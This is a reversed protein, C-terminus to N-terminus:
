AATEKVLYSTGDYNFPKLNGDSGFQGSTTVTTSAKGNSGNVMNMAAGGKGGSANVFAVSSVGVFSCGDAELLRFNNSATNCSITGDYVSISSSCREFRLGYLTGNAVTITHKNLNVVVKGGTFQSIIPATTIQFDSMIRFEVVFKNNKPANTIATALDTQSSIEYITNKPVYEDMILRIGNLAFYYSSATQTCESRRVSLDTVTVCEYGYSNGTLGLKYTYNVCDQFQMGSIVANTGNVYELLYQTVATPTGGCAYAYFGNISLGRFSSALLVKTCSECGCGSMNTGRAYLVYAVASRDCYCSVLSYYCANFLYFGYETCDYTGCNTLVTATTINNNTGRLDFGRTGVSVNVNTLIGVFTYMFVGTQNFQTIIIDEIDPYSCYSTETGGIIGYNINKNGQITVGTLKLYRVSALNFFSNIVTGASAYLVANDGIIHTYDKTINLFTTSETPDATKLYYDGNPIEVKGRVEQALTIARRIYPASDSTQDNRKAGYKLVNYTDSILMAQRNGQLPIIDMENATMGTVAKYIAGGGDNVAYYGLTIMCSNDGLSTSAKMDAVTDFYSVKTQFLVQDILDKLTGDALWQEMIEKAYGELQTNVWDVLQELISMMNNGQAVLENVKRLMRALMIYTTPSDDFNLRQLYSYTWPYPLIKNLKRTDM